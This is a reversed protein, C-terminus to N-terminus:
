LCFGKTQNATEVRRRAIEAYEPNIECGIADRGMKIAAVATTGSGLFPDLIISPAVRGCESGICGCNHTWGITEVKTIHRRADRNGSVKADETAKTNKGPRTPIRERKVMRSIPTGCINCTGSESTGARICNRALTEPFAAFHSDKVRAVPISWVSRSWDPDIDLYYDNTKAFMFIQEHSVIPRKTVAGPMPNPKAWIIESKLLWGDDALGRAVLWPVGLLCGDQIKDGINLWLTGDDRLARRCQRFVEVLNAVYSSTWKEAGIQDGHGYDRQQFYPPSTVIAHVSEAPLGAITVRSDGEIVKWTNM